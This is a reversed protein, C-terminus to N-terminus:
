ATVDENTHYRSREKWFDSCVKVPGDKKADYYAVIIAALFDKSYLEIDEDSALIDRMDGFRVHLDVLLRRMPSSVSTHDWVHQVPLAPPLHPSEKDKSILADICANQLRPMLRREAFVYLDLLPAFSINEYTEDDYLVKGTYLWENFRKFVEPDEDELTVRGERAEMFTSNFCSRFYASERCLLGKHIGFNVAEPGVQLFVLSDYLSRSAAKLEPSAAPSDAQLNAIKELSDATSYTPSATINNTSPPPSDTQSM